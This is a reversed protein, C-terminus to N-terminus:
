RCSQLVGKAQAFMHEVAEPSIQHSTHAFEVSYTSHILEALQELRRSAIEYRAQYRTQHNMMADYTERVVASTQEAAAAASLEGRMYAARLADIQSLAGDILGVDKAQAKAVAQRQRKFALSQLYKIVAIRAAILFLISAIVVLLRGPPLWLPPFIDAGNQM